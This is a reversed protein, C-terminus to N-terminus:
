IAESIDIQMLYPEPIDIFNYTKIGRIDQENIHLRSEIYFSFLQFLSYEYLGYKREAVQVSKQSLLVYQQLEDLQNFEFLTM